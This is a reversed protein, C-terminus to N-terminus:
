YEKVTLVGNVSQNSTIPSYALVYEDHTNAITSTLYSLFNQSMVSTSGAAGVPLSAIVRECNIDDGTKSITQGTGKAQELRSNSAYTLPASLTPNLLLYLAGADNQPSTNSIAM